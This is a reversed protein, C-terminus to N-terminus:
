IPHIEKRIHLETKRSFTVQHIETLVNLYLELSLQFNELVSELVNNPLGEIQKFGSEIHYLDEESHVKIFNIANSGFTNILKEKILPLSYAALLELAMAYGLFSYANKFSRLYQLEYFAKTSALEKYESIKKGLSKLDNLALNEHGVEEQIHDLLRRHYVESNTSGAAIHMIRTSHSVYYYTQALWNSYYEKNDWPLSTM